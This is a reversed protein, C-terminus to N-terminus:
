RLQMKTLQWILRINYSPDQLEAHDDLPYMLWIPGKDRLSLRKGDAKLALIVNYNIFDSLPVDIAYDNEAVLHVSTATGIEISALADRALPGIFEIVGDTFETRTRVTIQPLALLEAETINIVAQAPSTANSVALLDRATAPQGTGAGVLILSTLLVTSCFSRNSIRALADLIAM